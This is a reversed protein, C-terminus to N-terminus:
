TIPRSTPLISALVPTPDTMPSPLKEPPLVDAAQPWSAMLPPKFRSRHLEPAAPDPTMAHVVGYLSSLSPDLLYRHASHANTVTKCHYPTVLAQICMNERGGNKINKEKTQCNRYQVKRIDKPTAQM